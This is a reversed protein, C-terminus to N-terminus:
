IEEEMSFIANAGDAAATIIQRLPKTRVDGAAFFGKTSTRGDEGAKIYGSENLEVLGEALSSQPITGVAVFIGDVPLETTEETNKNYVSIRNVRREGEISKVESDWVMEVNELSLLRTQLSKAARLSDRRHIVYIKKCIKSLYIADGVAVDGGGVVAVTKNKFFAGDCTACYSVGRGTYKAEGPVGLLRHSAGMAFLVNKAEYTGAFGTVVKYDGCDTIETVEDEVFQAGLKEAHERFTTAMDFGNIDPLGLYNDVESTNIVQGGSMYNKEIVILNMQARCGYVAASLGAPGSGIIILDYM